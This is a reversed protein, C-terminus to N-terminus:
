RIHHPMEGPLDLALEVLGMYREGQYWPAQYILKSRGNKEVTYCNTLQGELIQRLRIRAQEPHCDFLNRGVLQRGGSKAFARCAQDNMELITGDVGCVTIAAAFEQAWSAGAQGASGNM